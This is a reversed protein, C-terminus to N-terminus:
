RNKENQKRRLLYGLGGSILFCMLGAFTNTSINIFGEYIFLVVFAWGFM